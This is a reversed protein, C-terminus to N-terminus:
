HISLTLEYAGITVRIGRWMEGDPTDEVLDPEELDEKTQVRVCGVKLLVCGYKSAEEKLATGVLGDPSIDTLYVGDKCNHITAGFKKNAQLALDVEVSNENSTIEDFAANVEKRTTPSKRPLSPRKYFPNDPLYELYCPEDDTLAEGVAQQRKLALHLENDFVTGDRYRANLSSLGSASDHVFSKSLCITITYTNDSEDNKARHVSQTFAKKSSVFTDNVAIVLMERRKTRTIGLASAVTKKSKLKKVWVGNSLAAFDGADNDEELVIGHKETRGILVDVFLSEEDKAVIRNKALRARVSTLFSQTEQRLVDLLPPPGRAELVYGHPNSPHNEVIRAAWEKGADMSDKFAREVKNLVYTHFQAPTFLVNNTGKIRNPVNTQVHQVDEVKSVRCSNSSDNDNNEAEGERGNAHKLPLQTKWSKCDDQSDVNESSTSVDVVNRAKSPLQASRNLNEDEQIDHLMEQLLKQEEEDVHSDWIGADDIGDNEDDMDVDRVNDNHNSTSPASSSSAFRGGLGTDCAASAASERSSISMDDDDIVKKCDQDIDGHAQQTRHHTGGGSSSRFYTTSNRIPMANNNSDNNIFNRQNDVQTPAEKRGAELQFAPDTEEIHLM